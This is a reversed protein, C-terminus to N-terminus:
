CNWMMQSPESLKELSVLSNINSLVVFQIVLLRRSLAWLIVHNSLFRFLHALEAMHQMFGVARLRQGVACQFLVTRFILQYFPPHSDKLQSKTSLCKHPQKVNILVAQRERNKTSTFFLQAEAPDYSSPSYHPILSVWGQM